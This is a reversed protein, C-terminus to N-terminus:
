RDDRHGAVETWEEATMAFIVHDEWVGAIKVFRKALGEERFGVHRALALSAANRPIIGAQVRHLGLPGFATALIRMVAETMLGQRAHTEAIWYGLDAGQLVGRIVNNLSARGVIEGRHKDCLVFRYSRDDAWAIRDGHLRERMAEFPDTLSEQAPMWPGIFGWSATQVALLEDSDEVRPARLMVREGESRFTLPIRGAM